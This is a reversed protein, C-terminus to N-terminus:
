HGPRPFDRRAKLMCERYQEIKRLAPFSIHAEILKHDPGRRVFDRLRHKDCVQPAFKEPKDSNANDMLKFDAYLFECYHEIKQSM